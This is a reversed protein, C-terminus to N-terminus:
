WVKLLAPNKFIIFGVVGAGVLLADKLYNEPPNKTIVQEKPDVLFEGGTIALPYQVGSWKKFQPQTDALGNELPVLYAQSVVRIKGTSPDKIQVSELKFTFNYNAKEVSGDKKILIYGIAPSDKGSIRLENVVFGIKKDKSLFTYDSKKQLTKTRSISVVTTEDSNVQEKRKLHIHKWTKKTHSRLVKQTQYLTALQAVQKTLQVYKDQTNILKDYREQLLVRESELKQDMVYFKYGFILVVALTVVSMIHVFYLKIADM